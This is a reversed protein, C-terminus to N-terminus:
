ADGGLRLVIRGGAKEFVQAIKAENEKAATEFMKVAETGEKGIKRAIVFAIGRAESTTLKRRGGRPGKRDSYVIKRRVWLELADPPPMPQGPRRGLELVRVHELPSGVVGLSDGVETRRVEGAIRGRAAETVGIPTKVKVARELLAVAEHTAAELEAPIVSGAAGFDPVTVEFRLM